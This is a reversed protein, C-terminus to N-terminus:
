CWWGRHSWTYAQNLTWVTEGAGRYYIECRGSGQQVNSPVRPLDPDGKSGWHVPDDLNYTKWDEPTNYIVKNAISDLTIGSGSIDQYRDVSEGVNGALLGNYREWASQVYAGLFNFIGAACTSSECYATHMLNGEADYGTGWLNHAVAEMLVSTLEPDYNAEALIILALFQQPTFNGIKFNNWWGPTQYYWTYLEFMREGDCAATNDVRTCEGSGKSTLGNPKPPNFYNPLDGETRM